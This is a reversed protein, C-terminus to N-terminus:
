LRLNDADAAVLSLVEFEAFRLTSNEQLLHKTKDLLGNSYCQKSLATPSKCRLAEESLWKRKEDPVSGSYRTMPHGLVHFFARWFYSRFM